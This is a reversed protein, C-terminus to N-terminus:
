PALLRRCLAETARAHAELTYKAATALAEERLGIRLAPQLAKQILQFLQGADSPDDLILGSMRSQLIEAAGARRSVVVPLGSALAELVVNGFAENFSPLVFVDALAFFPRPDQRVGIFHVVGNLGTQHIREIYANMAPDRGVVLVHVGASKLQPSAALLTELGKRKFANGVFLVVPAADSIGLKKRIEARKPNGPPVQFSEVDIGDPIIEIAEEPVGHVRMLDDRVVRSIAIIRRYAGPQFQKREVKLMARHYPDCGRLFRKFRSDAAGMQDLFNRHTGGGCRIIDSRVTRAYSITLDHGGREALEPGRRALARLRGLRGPVLYPIPHLQVGPAAAIELECAYVHIEHGYGALLRTVEFLDKETGGVRDYRKAIFALKMPPQSTVTTINLSLTHRAVSCNSGLNADGPGIGQSPDARGAVLDFDIKGGNKELIGRLGPDPGTRHGSAGPHEEFKVPLAAEGAHQRAAEDAAARVPFIRTQQDQVLRTHATALRHHKRPAAVPLVSAELEDAGALDRMGALQFREQRVRAGPSPVRVERAQKRRDAAHVRRANVVATERGVVQDDRFRRATRGLEIDHVQRAADIEGVVQLAGAHGPVVQDVEDVPGARFGAPFIAEADEVGVAEGRRFLFLEQGEQFGVAGGFEEAPAQAVLERPGCSFGAWGVSGGWWWVAM